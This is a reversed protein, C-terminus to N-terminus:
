MEKRSLLGAIYFTAMQFKVWRDRGSSKRICDCAKYM